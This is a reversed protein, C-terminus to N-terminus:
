GGDLSGEPGCGRAGPLFQRPRLAGDDDPARALARAILWLGVVLLALSVAAGAIRPIGVAPLMWWWLNVVRLTRSSEISAAIPVKGAQGVFTGVQDANRYADATERWAAGWIRLAPAYRPNWVRAADSVHAAAAEQYYREYFSILTPSNIIFGAITLTVLLWRRRQEMLAALAMLGPVAPLLFRPGWTWSEDWSTWLAYEALYAMAVAVILGGERRKFIGVPVAVIAFVAPCYWLLGTGPCALLGALAIPATRLSFNASQGFNLPNAFRIWNYLFYILLGAATGCFPASWKGIPMRKGMLYVGLCPGLVIGTPKALIALLAAAAARRAAGGLAFYIGAITLLALLPGSFFLRDYVLAITGFAFGLAAFISGRTSAGMRRALLSVMLATAATLIPSLTLAFIAAVYHQPLGLRHGVYVGIAVPPLALISLLPYWISYYCGHRGLVGLSPLVTFGHGTVLSESVAVMSNGDVSYIVAPFFAAYVLWIGIACSLTASEGLRRRM